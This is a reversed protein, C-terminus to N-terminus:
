IYLTLGSLLATEEFFSINGATSFDLALGERKRLLFVRRILLHVAIARNKMVEEALEGRRKVGKRM